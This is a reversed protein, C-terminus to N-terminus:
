HTIAIVIRSESFCVTLWGIVSNGNWVLRDKQRSGKRVKNDATKKSIQSNSKLKLRRDCQKGQRECDLVVPTHQLVCSYVSLILAPEQYFRRM